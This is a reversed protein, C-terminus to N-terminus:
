LSAEKPKTQPNQAQPLHLEPDTTDVRVSRCIARAIPAENLRFNELLILYVTKRVQILYLFHLRDPEVAFVAHPSRGIPDLVKGRWSCLLTPSHRLFGKEIQPIERMPLVPQLFQTLDAQTLHHIPVRFVLHMLKVAHDSPRRLVAHLPADQKCQYEPPLQLQLRNHLLRYYNPLFVIEAEANDAGQAKNSRFKPM